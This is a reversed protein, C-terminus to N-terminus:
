LVLLVGAKSENSFSFIAKLRGGPFQRGTVDKHLSKHIGPVKDNYGKWIILLVKRLKIWLPKKKGGSISQGRQNEKWMEM